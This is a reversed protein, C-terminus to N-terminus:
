CGLGTSSRGPTWSHWSWYTDKRYLAPVFRGTPPVRDSEPRQVAVRRCTDAPDSSGMENITRALWLMLPATLVAALPGEPEADLCEYVPRWRRAPFASTAENLYAKVEEIHLPLLQIAVARSIARGAERVATVYEEPRSTLIIPISSGWNNIEKIFDGRVQEPLEDLGDLIPIVSSFAVSEALSTKDGTTAKVPMSLGPHSRTLQETIWDLLSKNYNWSNAPLIVPVPDGPSRMAVLDRALKAALVSKGAGAAGLIVLRRSPIQSFMSLIEDFQGSLSQADQSTERDGVDFGIGPTTSETLYIVEWRVPFPRPDNIRRLREEEAWQQSLVRALDDCARSITLTSAPSRGRLGRGLLPGLFAILGLVFAAISGFNGAWGIGKASLLRGLAVSAAALVLLVGITIGRCLRSSRM